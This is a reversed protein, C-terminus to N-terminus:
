RYKYIKIGSINRSNLSLWNGGQMVKILCDVAHDNRVQQRLKEIGFFSFSVNPLKKVKVDMVAETCSDENKPPREKRTDALTVVEKIERERNESHSRDPRRPVSSSNVMESRQRYDPQKPELMPAKPCKDLEEEKKIKIFQAFFDSVNLVVINTEDNNINVVVNSFLRTIKEQITDDEKSMALFSLFLKQNQNTAFSYVWNLGTKQNFTELIHPIFEGHSAITARFQLRCLLVDQFKVLDGERHLTSDSSMGFIRIINKENPVQYAVIGLIDLIFLVEKLAIKWSLRMEKTDLDDEDDQIIIQKNTSGIELIKRADNKKIEINGISRLLTRVIKTVHLYERSNIESMRDILIKELPLLLLFRMFVAFFAENIRHNESEINSKEGLLFYEFCFSFFYSIVFVFVFTPFPNKPIFSESLKNHLVGIEDKVGRIKEHIHEEDYCEIKFVSDYLEDTFVQRAPTLMMAPMNTIVMSFAGILMRLYVPTNKDVLNFHLGLAKIVEALSTSGISVAAHVWLQAENQKLLSLEHRKHRLEELQLLFDTSLTVKAEDSDPKVAILPKHGSRQEKRKDSYRGM